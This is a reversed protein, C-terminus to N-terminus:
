IESLWKQYLCVLEMKLVQFTRLTSTMQNPDHLVSQIAVEDGESLAELVKGMVKDKEGNAFRFKPPQEPLDEGRYIYLGLGHLSICKALCRQIATNIEFANPMEITKNVHNLVPHVQTRSIGEIIVEVTVFCGAPTQTYPFGNSDSLVHWTAEPYHKLLENLADSWSLYTFQGKKETFGSVDIASLKEFVSM